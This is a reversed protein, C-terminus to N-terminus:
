HLECIDYHESTTRELVNVTGVVAFHSLAVPAKELEVDPAAEAEGDMINILVKPIM